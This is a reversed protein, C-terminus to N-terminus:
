TSSIVESLAPFSRRAPFVIYGVMMGLFISGM